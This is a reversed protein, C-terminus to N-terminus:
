DTDSTGWLAKGALRGFDRLEDRSLNAWQSAHYAQIEPTVAAFRQRGAPTARVLVGRRDAPNRLREALGAKELRDILRTADAARNLLGDAVAGVPIGAEPEEALCLTWLAVYQAHTIDHARCIEELRELSRNALLLVNLHVSRAARVGRPERPDSWLAQTVPSCPLLACRARM